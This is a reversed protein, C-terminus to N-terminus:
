RAETRFLTTQLSTVTSTTHTNSYEPLVQERIFNEIFSLARGSATYDCYVLNRYGFPSLFKEDHGIESQAILNFIDESSKDSTEISLFNAHTKNKEYDDQNETERDVECKVPLEYFKRNRDRNRFEFEM